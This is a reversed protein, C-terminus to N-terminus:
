WKYDGYNRVTWCESRYLFSLQILTEYLRAKTKQTIERNRCILANKWISILNTWNEKKCRKKEISCDITM